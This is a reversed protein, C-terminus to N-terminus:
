SRPQCLLMTWPMPNKMEVVEFYSSVLRVFSAKSWHQIHGPSNGFDKLYAGRMMNLIRWLPEIPVSLLYWRAGFDSLAQLGRIPDELHELVECCVVMEFSTIPHYTELKAIEWSIRDSSYAARTEELVSFSLETAHVQILPV